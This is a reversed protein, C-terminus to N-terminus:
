SESQLFYGAHEVRAACNQATIQSLGAGTARSLDGTIRAKEKRPYAELKSRTEEIQNLDPSYPPIYLVAARAMKVAEEIGKVKHTRLNDMVVIDGARLTPVLCEKVYTRFSEGNLSGSITQAAM